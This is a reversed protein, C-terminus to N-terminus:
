SPCGPQGARPVRGHPAAPVIAPMPGFQSARIAAARYAGAAPTPRSASAATAWAIAHAATYEVPLLTTGFAARNQRIASAVVTGSSTSRGTGAAIAIVAALTSASAVNPRVVTPPIVACTM